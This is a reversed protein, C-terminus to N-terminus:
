SGVWAAVDGAVQNAAKNLAPGVTTNDIPSIPVRAEFRKKEVDKGAERILAGDFTVVAEGTSGDVGFNRLEGSLRAGPNSFSQASSLVVRGTKAAITDSMLRAFLRQPAEVWAAGVVYAVQDGTTVPIRAVALAQPVVPVLITITKAAASNQASGVPLTATPNLTLLTKPPKGGFGFCGALPLALLLPLYRKM